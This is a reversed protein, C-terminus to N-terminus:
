CSRNFLLSTLKKFKRKLKFKKPNFGIRPMLVLKKKKRVEMEREREGDGDSM